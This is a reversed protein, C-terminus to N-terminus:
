LKSEIKSFKVNEPVGCSQFLNFHKEVLHRVNIIVSEDEKLKFKFAECINEAATSDIRTVDSFDLEIQGESDAELCQDKRRFHMKGYM